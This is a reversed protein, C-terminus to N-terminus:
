KMCCKKFKKGSGCPCPDNRGAEKQARLPEVMPNRFDTMLRGFQHDIEHQIAISIIPNDFHFETPNLPDYFCYHTEKKFSHTEEDIVDHEFTYHQYRKTNVYVDPMSLCGERPFIFEDEQKIVKANIISIFGKGTKIVSVKKPIGVQIASLGVGHEYVTLTKELVAVIQKAELIDEVPLSEQRLYSTDTVLIQKDLDNM